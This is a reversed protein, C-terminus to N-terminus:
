EDGADALQQNARDLDARAVEYLKHAAAARRKARECEQEATALAARASEVQAAADDFAADADTAEQEASEADATARAVARRAAALAKERRQAAKLDVVPEKSKKSPKSQEASGTGPSKRRPTDAAVAANTDGAGLLGAVFTATAEPSSGIQTLEATLEGKPSGRPAARVVQATVARWDALAQRLNGSPSEQATRADAAAAAWDGVLDPHEHAIVNLAWEAASQRRLKAVAGALERDGAAKLEAVRANRAAVFENPPVRLLEAAVAQEDVQAFKPAAACGGATM